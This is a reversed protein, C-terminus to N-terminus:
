LNLFEPRGSALTLRLGLVFLMGVYTAAGAVAVLGLELVSTMQWQDIERRLILVIVTMVSAAVLVKWLNALQQRVHLGLMKRLTLVYIGFMTFSLAVRALAAGDAALFHYGVTIFAIRFALDITNLRLIIHPRDVALCVSYLTQFYPIPVMALALLSLFTAAENWQAGLMVSTTLDATLSIGVAVPVSIMMAFRSAKLFARQLRLRDSAIRSFAAMVPQLAPGVITQTPLVSLDNAVSYRGLVASSAWAGLMFRDLQWNLASVLQASSFWGIFSAFDKFRVLTLSPRYPAFLYSILTGAVASAVFNAAIAWYSGGMLVVTTAATFACVKGLTELMFPPLYNIDRAFYIMAPSAFGKAAPGIVLVSALAIINENHNYAAYPWAVLMVVVAIFVSRMLALTFGTDLHTKDITPQRILAQTVPVELVTDVVMVLAMALAAIGFESPSLMRALILLTFFDIFRGIFRSFVLWSAGKLTTTALM